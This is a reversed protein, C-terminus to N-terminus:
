ETLKPDIRRYVYGPFVRIMGDEQSVEGDKGMLQWLADNAVLYRYVPYGGRYFLLEKGRFLDIPMVPRQHDELLMALTNADMQAIQERDALLMAFFALFFAIPLLLWESSVLACATLVTSGTFLFQSNVTKM